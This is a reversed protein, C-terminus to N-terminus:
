QFFCLIPTKKSKDDFYAAGPLVSMEWALKVFRKGTLDKTCWFKALPTGVHHTTGTKITFIKRTHLDVEFHADATAHVSEFM